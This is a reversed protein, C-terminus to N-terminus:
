FSNICSSRPKQEDPLTANEHDLHEPDSSHSSPRQSFLLPAFTDYTSEQYNRPFDETVMVYDEDFDYNHSELSKILSSVTFRADDRLEEITVTQLVTNNKLDDLHVNTVVTLKIHKENNYLRELEEAPMEMGIASANYLYFEYRLSMCAGDLSLEQTVLSMDNIVLVEPLKFRFKHKLVLIIEAMLGQMLHSLIPLIADIGINTQAAINTLYNNIYESRQNSPIEINRTIDIVKTFRPTDRAFAGVVESGAQRAALMEALYHRPDGHEYSSKLIDRAAVVYEFKKLQAETMPDYGAFFSNAFQKAMDISTTIARLM